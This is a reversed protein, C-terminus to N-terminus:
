PGGRRELLEALMAPVAALVGGLADRYDVDDRCSGDIAGSLTLKHHLRAVEELDVPEAPDSPHV